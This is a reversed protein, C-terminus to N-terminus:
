RRKKKRGKKKKTLESIEEEFDKPNINLRELSRKIKPRSRWIANDVSKQDLIKNGKKNTKYLGLEKAVEKYSYGEMFRLVFVKKEMDSLSKSIEDILYEEYDRRVLNLQDGEISSGTLSDSETIADMYSISDGNENKSSDDLSFSSNLIIRKKAMERNMTTIIHKKISSQAFAAFSGKDSDYKDIVNLLKIAGEQFVDQSEGGQIFFVRTLHILYNYMYGLIKEYAHENGSKALEIQENLEKKNLKLPKLGPFINLFENKAM